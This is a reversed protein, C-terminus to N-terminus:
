KSKPEFVDGKYIWVKIGIDGYPLHARYRAFDIDARITQLPIRGNALWERRSMESGDLRGALAVKVGKVEKHSSVKTLAQKLVRRFSIRKELSEAIMKAVIAADTEPGKIEEIVLQLGRPKSLSLKEFLKEIKNKLANAGAGSRGIILGPRSTYIIVKLTAPSREIEVKSIYMKDLEKFLWARLKVDAKLFAQYNRRDFWRSKWDRVQGLRFSYPHVRHTM